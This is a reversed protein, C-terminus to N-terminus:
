VAPFRSGPIVECNGTSWITSFVSVGVRCALPLMSQVRGELGVILNSKWTKLVPPVFITSEPATASERAPAQPPATAQVTGDPSRFHPV